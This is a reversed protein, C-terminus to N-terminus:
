PESLRCTPRSDSETAAGGIRTAHDGSTKEALGGLVDFLDKFFREQDFCHKPFPVIELHHAKLHIIHWCGPVYEQFVNLPEIVKHAPELGDPASVLPHSQSVRSVLGDSGSEIWSHPDVGDSTCQYIHDIHMWTVACLIKM